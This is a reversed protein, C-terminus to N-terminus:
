IDVASSKGQSDMTAPTNDALSLHSRRRPPEDALVKGFFVLEVDYSTNIIANVNYLKHACQLTTNQM